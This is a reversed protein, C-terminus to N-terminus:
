CRMSITSISLAQHCAEMGVLSLVLSSSLLPLATPYYPPLKSDWLASLQVEVTQLAVLIHSKAVSPHACGFYGPWLRRALIYNLCIALLHPLGLFPLRSHTHLHFLPLILNCLGFPKRCFAWSPGGFFGGDSYWSGLCGHHLLSAVSLSPAIAAGM